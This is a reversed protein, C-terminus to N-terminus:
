FNARYYEVMKILWGFATGVATHISFGCDAHLGAFYCKEVEKMMHNLVFSENESTMQRASKGVEILIPNAEEWTYINDISKIDELTFSGQNISNIVETAKM